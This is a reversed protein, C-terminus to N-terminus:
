KAKTSFVRQMPRWAGGIVLLALWFLPNGFVRLMWETESALADVRRGIYALSAVIAGILGVIAGCLFASQRIVSSHRRVGTEGTSMIQILAVATTGLGFVLACRAGFSLRQWAGPAETSGNTLLQWAADSTRDFMSFGALATLGSALQQLATFTFGVGATIPIVLANTNASIIKALAWPTVTENGPGWEYALWIIVGVLAFRHRWQSERFDTRLASYLTSRDVRRQGRGNGRPSDTASRAPSVVALKTLLTQHSDSM